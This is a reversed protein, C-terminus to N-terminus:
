APAILFWKHFLMNPDYKKKLAQLKPYHKGFLKQTKDPPAVGDLSISTDDTGGVVFDAISERPPQSFQGYNGYGEGDPMLTALDHTTQRAAAQKEPTNESWQVLILANGPLNRRYPTADEPISNIKDNPLYELIMAVNFDEKSAGMVRDFVKRSLDKSPVDSLLVGKLYYNQHPIAFINQVIHTLRQQYIMSM